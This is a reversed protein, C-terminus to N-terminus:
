FPNDNCVWITWRYRYGRIISWEFHLTTVFEWSSRCDQTLSLLYQDSAGGLGVYLPRGCRALVEYACSQICEINEFELSQQLLTRVAM